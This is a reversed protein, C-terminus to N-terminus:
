LSTPLPLDSGLGPHHHKITRFDLGRSQQEGRGKITELPPAFPFYLPTPTRQLRTATGQRPLRWTAPHSQERQSAQGEGRTSQTQRPKDSHKGLKGRGLRLRPEHADYLTSSHRSNLRAHPLTPSSPSTITACSTLGANLSKGPCTEQM